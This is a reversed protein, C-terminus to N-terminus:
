WCVKNGCQQALGHVLLASSVSNAQLGQRAATFSMKAGSCAVSLSQSPSHLQLQNPPLGAKLAANAKELMAREADVQEAHVCWQDMVWGMRVLQPVASSMCLHMISVTIRQAQMKSCPNASVTRLMAFM